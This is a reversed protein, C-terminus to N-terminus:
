FFIHLVITSLLGAAVDDLVVGAGGYFNREFYRVPFPKIIDFVRFILFGSVVSLVSVQIGAMAVTFGAIEDIVICGPDSQGILKEARDSTWIAFLIVALTFFVQMSSPIVLFLLVVPIGALTGFTGPAFSARGSGAGTASFLICKEAFSM